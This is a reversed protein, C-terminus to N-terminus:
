LFPLPMFPLSSFPISHANFNPFEIRACWRSKYVRREKKTLFFPPCYSWFTPESIFLPTSLYFEWQLSASSVTNQPTSQCIGRNGQPRVGDWAIVSPEKSVGGWQAQAEPVPGAGRCGHWGRCQVSETPAGIRLDPPHSERQFNLEQWRTPVYGIFVGHPNWNSDGHIQFFFYYYYLKIKKSNIWM